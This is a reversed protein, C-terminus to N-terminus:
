RSPSNVSSVISPEQGQVKGHRWARSVTKYSVDEFSHSALISYLLLLHQDQLEYKRRESNWKLLQTKAGQTSIFKNSVTKVWHGLQQDNRMSLSYKMARDTEMKQMEDYLRKTGITFQFVAFLVKSYYLPKPTVQRIISSGRIKSVRSKSWM